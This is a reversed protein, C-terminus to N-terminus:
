EVQSLRAHSHQPYEKGHDNVWQQIRFDEGIELVVLEGKRTLTLYRWTRDGVYPAIQDIFFDHAAELVDEYDDEAQGKEEETFDLLGAEPLDELTQLFRLGPHFDPARAWLLASQIETDLYAYIADLIRARKYDPLYGQIQDACEAISLIVTQPGVQPQM